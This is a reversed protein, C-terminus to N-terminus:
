GVLHLLIHKFFLKHQIDLFILPYSMLDSIVKDKQGLLVVKSMVKKVTVTETHHKAKKPVPEGSTNDCTKVNKQIERCFM